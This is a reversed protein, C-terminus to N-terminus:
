FISGSSGWHVDFTRLALTIWKRREEAKKESLLDSTIQEKAEIGELGTSKVKSVLQIIHFGYPTKIIDSIQGPQMSFAVDFLSAMDARRLGNLHGGTSGEPSISQDKAIGSFNESNIERRVAKAAEETAVVVQKISIRPESTALAQRRRVEKAVEEDTVKLGRTFKEEFYREILANECLRERLLDQHVSNTALFANVKIVEAAEDTCETYLEPASRNYSKDLTILQVLLKREIIQKIVLERLAGNALAEESESPQELDDFVGARSFEVEFDITESPIRVDGVVVTTHLRADLNEATMAVQSMKRWGPQPRSILVGALAGITLLIFIVYKFKM